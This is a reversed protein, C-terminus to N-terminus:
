PTVEFSLSTIASHSSDEASKSRPSFKASEIIEEVCDNSPITRVARVTGDMMVQFKATVMTEVKCRRARSQLLKLTSADSFARQSTEPPPTTEPSLPEAAQAARPASRQPTQERRTTSSPQARDLTPPDEVHVARAEQLIPEAQDQSTPEVSAIEPPPSPASTAPRAIQVTSPFDSGPNSAIVSLTASGGLTVLAACVLAIGRRNVAFRRSRSRSAETPELDLGVPSTAAQSQRQASGNEFLATREGRTGPAISSLREKTREHLHRPALISAVTMDDGDPIALAAREFEGMTSFRQNPSKAMARLILEEVAAPISPEISCPSPPQLRVHQDIIQYASVGTFPLTGTMMQFLVIGLSYIDTRADVPQALVQEPSMYFATGIVEDTRTLAGAEAGPEAVKAIGFDLVKVHSSSGSRHLLFINSPKVDRHVIGIEHAAGLARIAQVLIERARPWPLKSEQNLLKDLDAGRLLEMVFFPLSDEGGFDMIHIVHENHIRAASRAERLFRKRQREDRALRDDLVKVAVPVDLKLHHAEYVSGMGGEGLLRIIKFRGDLTQGIPTPATSRTTM